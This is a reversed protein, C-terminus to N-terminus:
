KEPLLLLKVYGGDVLERAASASKKLVTEGEEGTLEPFLSQILEQGPVNQEMGDLLRLFLTFQERQAAISHLEIAGEKRLRYQLAILHRKAEALQEKLPMSLDFGLAVKERQRGLWATAESTVTVVEREVDRWTIDNGIVPTDKEPNLPFKYFGWRAGMHCEILIKNDNVKCSDSDACVGEEGEMVYARQDLKWLQFDRNPAKGYDAELALWTEHFERWERRYDNNRRLFEWAWQERSLSKTFSYDEAKKWHPM